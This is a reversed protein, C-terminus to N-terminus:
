LKINDKYVKIEGFMNMFRVNFLTDCPITYISSM